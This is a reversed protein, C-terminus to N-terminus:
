FIGEGKPNVVAEVVCALSQLETLKTARDQLKSNEAKLEELIRQGAEENALVRLLAMNSKSYFDELLFDFTEDEQGKEQEVIKVITEM